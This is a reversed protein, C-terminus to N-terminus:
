RSIGASRRKAARTKNIRERQGFKTDHLAVDFEDSDYIRLGTVQRKATSFKNLRELVREEPLKM